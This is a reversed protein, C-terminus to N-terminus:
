NWEPCGPRQVCVIALLSKAPPMKGKDIVKPVLRVNKVLSVNNFVKPMKSPVFLDLTTAIDAQCEGM